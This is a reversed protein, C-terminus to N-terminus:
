MPLIVYGDVTYTLGTRSTNLVLTDNEYFYRVSDTVLQGKGPIVVSPFLLLADASGGIGWKATVKATGNGALTFLTVVYEQGEPVTFITV